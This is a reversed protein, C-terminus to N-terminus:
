KYFEDDAQGVLRHAEIWGDTVRLIAGCEAKSIEIKGDLVLQDSRVFFFERRELFRRLVAAILEDDSAVYM